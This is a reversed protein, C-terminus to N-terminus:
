VSHPFCWVCAKCRVRWFPYDHAVIHEISSIVMPDLSSELRRSNERTNPSPDLLRETTCNDELEVIQSREGGSAYRDELSAVLDHWGGERDSTNEM